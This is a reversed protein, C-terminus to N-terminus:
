PSSRACPRGHPQRRKRTRAAESVRGPLSNGRILCTAIEPCVSGGQVRGPAKGASILTYKGLAYRTARRRWSGGTEEAALMRKGLVCRPGLVFYSPTDLFGNKPKLAAAGPCLLACGAVNRGGGGSFAYGGKTPRKVVGRSLPCRSLVASVFFAREVAGNEKKKQACYVAYYFLRTRAAPAAACCCCGIYASPARSSFLPYRRQFALDDPVVLM